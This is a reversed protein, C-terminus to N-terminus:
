GGVPIRVTFKAGGLSESESIELKANHGEIIKGVIALGLGTGVGAKKTTFFANMVKDRNEPAIGLGNDEVLIVSHGGEHFLKVRIKGQFGAGVKEKKEALADAANSVLNMIVQGIQSRKVESQVTEDLEKRIEFEKTKAGLILLSERVVEALPVNKELQLDTRAANRMSHNIDVV